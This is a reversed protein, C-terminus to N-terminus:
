HEHGDGSTPQPLPTQTFRRKAISPIARHPTWGPLPLRKIVPSLEHGLRIAADYLRPHTMFFSWLAYAFSELSPKPRINWRRSGEAHINRLALLMRPLDIGVPCIDKCTGCLTEGCYLHKSREIGTLLPTIVAGIPGSYAYGYTHGGIRAYVPCVNLCGGCRICCLVERFVPDALIRSRGNDLVILHFEEPGDLFGNNRPGAIFSVYGGMKQASAGRCLLRLLLMQEDLTACIREMGMIAVHIRPLTTSLRINGENSVLAIQGTQACALNCGTIGMDANLFRTRLYKRAALTLAPPDDTYPIGITKEFLRGIDERTKHIAPAIIHSPHEGALQIIFEGLDTETVSIGDKELAANIGIEESTMSKGKVVSRVGRKRALNLVYDTAASADRAFFVNAGHSRINRSLTDLLVDLNRIHSMRIEHALHRLGEGEPLNRYAALAGNGLRDQLGKLAKKLIPDSLALQAQQPYHEPSSTTM